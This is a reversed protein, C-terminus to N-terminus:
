GRSRTRSATSPCTSGSSRRRPRSCGSRSRRSWSPRASAPRASSCSRAWRGTARPRPGVRARRITDAVVEVAEDQGVVREHLDAELEQLRELEGAVLEGSRSAPARPSWRRSRPRASSARRSAAPWSPWGRRSGRRDREQAAGRGRLGRRRGRGAERRAADRRARAADRGRRQRRAAERARGGPRGPRDGQRAPPVRHHLPRSLRAAADLAADDITSATTRGRLRRAPRAPDRRDGRGVAGRGDRALLAPGARLRARDQPVRGAHHRRDDRLEGRALLPKLINAADMAGEANGAGLVRTCSTSSCSSRARPRRRGGRAGGEPAARVPRPVPRRRGHRGPRARRRPRRAADRARRGRRHAPRPGRRDRDQRRRGRRDARRQEQAPPRPDRRDARDRRRPRHGPRDPGDAADATLDRGFEDLAPTSPRPADRAPSRPRSAGAPRGPGPGGDPPRRM